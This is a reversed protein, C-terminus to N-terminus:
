VKHTCWRSFRKFVPNWKGLSQPLLGWQAGSRLIWLLANLFRRCTEVRGFYVREQLLLLRYLFEWQKGTLETRSNM